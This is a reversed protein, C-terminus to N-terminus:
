IFSNDNTIQAYNKTGDNADGFFHITTPQNNPCSKAVLKEKFVIKQQKQM